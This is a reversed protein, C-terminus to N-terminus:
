QWLCKLPLPHSKNVQAHDATQLYVTVAL